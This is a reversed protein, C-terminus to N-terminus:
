LSEIFEKLKVSHSFVNDESELRKRSNLGLFKRFQEDIFLKQIKNIMDAYDSLDFLVGNYNNVILDNHGYTDSALIPLGSAQAELINYPSMELKSTAMYLDYYQLNHKIYSLDKRGELFVVLNNIKNCSLIPTKLYETDLIDGILHVEFHIKPYFIALHKVAEIILSQNKHKDVVGVNCVKFSDFFKYETKCVFDSSQVINPLYLTKKALRIDSILQDYSLHSLAINGDTCLKLIKILQKVKNKNLWAYSNHFTVLKIIKRFIFLCAIFTSIMDDKRNSFVVNIDKENIIKRVEHAKKVLYLPRDKHCNTQIPIYDNIEDSLRNTTNNNKLDLLIYVNNSFTKFLYAFKTNNGLILINM